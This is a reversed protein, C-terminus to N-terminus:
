DACVSDDMSWQEVEKSGLRWGEVTLRMTWTAKEGRVSDDVIVPTDGSVDSLVVSDVVCSTISAEASSLRVAAVSRVDYGGATAVIGDGLRQSVLRAVEDHLGSGEVAFDSPECNGPSRVCELRLDLLTRFEHELLLRDVSDDVELASPALRSDDVTVPRSTMITPTAVGVTVSRPVDDVRGSADGVDAGNRDAVAGVVMVVFAVVIVVSCVVSSVVSSVVSCVGRRPQISRVPRDPFCEVRRFRSV